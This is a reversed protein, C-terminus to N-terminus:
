KEHSKLSLLGKQLLWLQEKRLHNKKQLRSNKENGKLKSTETKITISNFYIQNTFIQLEFFVPFPFLGPFPPLLNQFLIPNPNLVGRSAM